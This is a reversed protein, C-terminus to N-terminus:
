TRPPRDDSRWNALVSRSTDPAYVHFEFISREPLDRVHDATVELGGFAVEPVSAAAVEGLKKLIAVGFVPM